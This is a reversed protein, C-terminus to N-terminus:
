WSRSVCKKIKKKTILQSYCSNPSFILEARGVSSQLYMYMIETPTPYKNKKLRCHDEICLYLFVKTFRILATDGAILSRHDSLPLPFWPFATGKLVLWAELSSTFYVWVGSTDRKMSKDPLKDQFLM